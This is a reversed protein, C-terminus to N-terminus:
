AAHPGTLAATTGSTRMGAQKGDAKPAPKALSELIKPLPDENPKLGRLPTQPVVGARDLKEGGAGLWRRSVLEVAGGQRLPVRAREM